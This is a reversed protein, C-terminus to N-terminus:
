PLAAISYELVAGFAEGGAVQARRTQFAAGASGAHVLRMWPANPILKHGAGFVWWEKCVGTAPDWQRLMVGTIAAAVSQRVEFVEGSETTLDAVTPIYSYDIRAYSAYRPLQAYREIIGDIELGNLWEASANSQRWTTTPATMTQDHDEYFWLETWMASSSKGQLSVIETGPSQGGPEVVIFVGELVQPPVDPAAFTSHACAVPCPIDPSM